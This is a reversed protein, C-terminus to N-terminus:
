EILERNDDSLRICPPLLDVGQHAIQQVGHLVFFTAVAVGQAWNLLFSIPTQSALMFQGPWQCCLFKASFEVGKM